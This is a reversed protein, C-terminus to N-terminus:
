LKYVISGCYFQRVLLCRYGSGVGHIPEHGAGFFHFQRAFLIHLDSSNSLYTVATPLFSVSSSIFM